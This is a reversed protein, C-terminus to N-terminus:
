LGLSKLYQYTEPCTEQPVLDLASKGNNTLAFVDVGQEILLQITAKARLDYSRHFDCRAASHIPTYGRSDVVQLNAGSEVFKEVIETKGDFAAMHIVTYDDVDAFTFGISPDVGAQLLVDIMEFTVDEYNGSTTTFLPRFVMYLIPEGEESLYNPDMGVTFILYKAVEPMWQVVAFDLITRPGQAVTNRMYVECLDSVLELADSRGELRQKLARLLQVENVIKVDGKSNVFLDKLFCTERPGTSDNETSPEGSTSPSADLNKGLIYGSSFDTDPGIFWYAPEEGQGVQEQYKLDCRAHQMVQDPRGQNLCGDEKPCYVFVNCLPNEQCENCCEDQTYNLRMNEDILDGKANANQIIECQNQYEQTNGLHVSFILCFIAVFVPCCM